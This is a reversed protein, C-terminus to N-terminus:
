HVGKLKLFARGHGSKFFLERARAERLTSFEEMYVLEWPVYAKTSRVKGSNHAALRAVVDETM